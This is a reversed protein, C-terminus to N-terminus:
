RCPFGDFDTHSIGCQLSALIIADERRSRLVHDLPIGVVQLDFFWGFANRRHAYVSDGDGVHFPAIRERRMRSISPPVLAHHAVLGSGRAEHVFALKLDPRPGGGEALAHNRLSRSRRQADSRLRARRTLSGDWGIAKVVVNHFRGAPSIVVSASFSLLRLGGVAGIGRATRGSGLVLRGAERWNCVVTTCARTPTICPM